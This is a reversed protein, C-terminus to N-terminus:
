VHGLYTHPKSLENEAWKKAVEETDGFEMHEKIVMLKFGEILKNAVYKSSENRGDTRYEESAMKEILMLILRFSSQQLTRHQRCFAEIFDNTSCNSNNVYDTLEEALKSGKTSRM